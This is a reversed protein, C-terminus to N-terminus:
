CGDVECARDLLPLKGTDLVRNAAVRAERVESDQALQADAFPRWMEAVQVYPYPIPYLTYPIPYLTYTWKLTSACKLRSFWVEHSYVSSKCTRTPKIILSM